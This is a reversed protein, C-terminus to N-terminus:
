FNRFDTLVKNRVKRFRDDLEDWTWYKTNIEDWIPNAESYDVIKGFKLIQIAFMPIRISHFISKIGTKYENQLLKKKSKVWSNSSVHSISHRLKDRDLKFDSEFNIVEQIPESFICELNGPRHWDLDSKFKDPTFIHINYLGNRIETSEVSNNGVIIIDIDSDRGNTGYLQSGYLYINFVRKPHLGSKKIIEEVDFLVFIILFIKLKFYKFNNLLKILFYLYKFDLINYFNKIYFIRFNIL